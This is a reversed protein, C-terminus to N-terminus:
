NLSILRPELIDVVKPSILYFVEYNGNRLFDFLLVMQKYEKEFMRKADDYIMEKISFEKLERYLLIKSGIERSKEIKSSCVIDSLKNELGKLTEFDSIVSWLNSFQYGRKLLTIHEGSFGDRPVKHNLALILKDVSKYNKM